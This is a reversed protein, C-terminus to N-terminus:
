LFKEGDGRLDLEEDWKALRAQEGAERAIRKGARQASKLPAHARAPPKSCEAREGRKEGSDGAPPLDVSAGGAGGARLNEDGASGKPRTPHEEGPPLDSAAGSPASGEQRGELSRLTEEFHNIKTPRNETTGFGGKPTYPPKRGVTRLATKARRLPEKRDCTEYIEYRVSVFKGSIKGYRRKLYGAEELETMYRQITKRDRDAISALTALSPFPLSCDPGCYGKLIIYIM